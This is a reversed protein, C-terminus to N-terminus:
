AIFLLVLIIGIIYLLPKIIYRFVFTERIGPFANDIGVFIKAAVIVSVIIFIKFQWQHLTPPEVM